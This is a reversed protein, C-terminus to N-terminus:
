AGFEAGDIRGGVVSREMRVRGRESPEFHFESQRNSKPAVAYCSDTWTAVYFLVEGATKM